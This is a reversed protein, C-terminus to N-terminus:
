PTVSICYRLARRAPSGLARTRTAEQEPRVNAARRRRRAKASLSSVVSAASQWAWRGAVAGEAELRERDEQQRRRSAAWQGTPGLRRWARAMGLLRALHLLGSCGITAARSSGRPVQLGGGGWRGVPQICFGAAALLM